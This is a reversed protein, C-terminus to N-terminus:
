RTDGPRVVEIDKGAQLGHAHVPQGKYVVQVRVGLQVEVLELHGLSLAHVQLYTMTAPQDVLSLSSLYLLREVDWESPLIGQPPLFYSGM